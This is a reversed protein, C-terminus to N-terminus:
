PSAAPSATSEESRSAASAEAAQRVRRPGYWLQADLDAETAADEATYRDLTRHFREGLLGGAIASVLPLLVAVAAVSWGSHSVPGSDIPNAPVSISKAPDLEGGAIWAAIGAAALLVLSLLWVGIGQRWGDFRAMRAAVYGGALYSLALIGIAVAGGGATLNDLLTSTPQGLDSVGIAVLGGVVMGALAAALGAAALLGFFVTEWQIRGM